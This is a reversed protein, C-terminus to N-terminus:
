QYVLLIGAELAQSCSCPPGARGAQLAPQQCRAKGMHQCGWTSLRCRSRRVWRCDSSHALVYACREEEPLDEPECAALGEELLRGRNKVFPLRFAESCQAVLAFACALLLAHKAWKSGAM